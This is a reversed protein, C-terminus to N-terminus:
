FCSRSSGTVARCDSNTYHCCGLNQIQYGLNSGEVTFLADPGSQFGALREACTAARM